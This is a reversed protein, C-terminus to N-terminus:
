KKEGAVHLDFTSYIDKSWPQWNRLKITDSTTDTIKFKLIRVGGGGVASNQNMLYDDGILVYNHKVNEDAIAWRYGSTPIEPLCIEVVDEPAVVLSKSNFSADIKHTM